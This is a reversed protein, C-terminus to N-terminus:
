PDHTIGGPDAPAPGQSSQGAVSEHHAGIGQPGGYHRALALLERRIQLAALRYFDRVTPPQVDALSKWLRLAANQGVAEAREWRRVGPYDALMRETLRLLRDRAHALLADRAGLDGARLRDLHGQLITSTDESM